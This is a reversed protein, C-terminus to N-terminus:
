VLSLSSKRRACFRLLAPLMVYTRSVNSCSPSSCLPTEVVPEVVAWVRSVLLLRTSHHSSVTNSALSDVQVKNTTIRRRTISAVTSVEKLNSSSSDTDEKAKVRNVTSRKVRSVTNGKAKNVVM